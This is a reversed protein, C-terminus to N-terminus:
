VNCVVCHDEASSSGHKYLHTIWYWDPKPLIKVTLHIFRINSLKILIFSYFVIVVVVWSKQKLVRYLNRVSFRCSLLSFDAPESTRQWCASFVHPCKPQNNLSKVWLRFTETGRLPQCSRFNYLNPGDELQKSM